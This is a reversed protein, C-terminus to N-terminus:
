HSCHCQHYSWNKQIIPIIETLASPMRYVMGSSGNEEANKYEKKCQMRIEVDIKKSWTRLVRFRSNARSENTALCLSQLPQLLKSCFARHLWVFCVFAIGSIAYITSIEGAFNWWPKSCTAERWPEHIFLQLLMSGPICTQQVSTWRSLFKSSYIILQKQGGLAIGEPDVGLFSSPM